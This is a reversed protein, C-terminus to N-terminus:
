KKSVGETVQALVVFGVAVLGVCLLTKGILGMNILKDYAGLLISGLFLLTKQIIEQLVPKHIRETLIAVQKDSKHYLNKYQKYVGVETELKDVNDLLLNVVAPTALEAETLYRRASSYSRQRKNSEPLTTNNDITENEDIYEEDLVNSREDDTM